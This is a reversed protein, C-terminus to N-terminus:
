RFNASFGLIEDQVREYKVQFKLIMPRNLFTKLFSSDKESISTCKDLAM